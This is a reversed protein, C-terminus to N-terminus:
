GAGESGVISRLCNSIYAVDAEELNAASPLNLGFEGLLESVPCSAGSRGVRRMSTLYPLRHLPHFFPRTDVGRDRLANTVLNRDSRESLLVSNMWFCSTVHTAEPNVVIATVDRLAIKYWSAIARKKDLLESIRALQACGVAAQLNTMRYNFGPETHFYRRHPDMSHDRLTRARRAVHQDDTLLMGGEGTTIVKNGYFSFVAVDGLSGVMRTKYLSGHAEAADEIVLLGHRSALANIADMEAPHGYLHVPMIAKTKVSIAKGIADPDICWTEPLVDVIVPIAGTYLVANVTAVFSLAPVIVEHGPGVGSSLLALHLAATGSSTSVGFRRGCYQAFETEFQNLFPGLSSIWGSDIAEILYRKELEGLSPEMVPYYRSSIATETVSAM